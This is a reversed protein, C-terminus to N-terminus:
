WCRAGGSARRPRERRPRTDVARDGPRPSGTPEPPPASRRLSAPRAGRPRPAGARRRARRRADDSGRARGSRHRARRDRHRGAGVVGGGWARDRGSAGVRRPAFLAMPPEHDRVIPEVLPDDDAIYPPNSAVLHLTGRLDAPLAEYWSGTAVRVAAAGRGIGAANARAVDAADSSADTLWVQMGDHWREAAISLGIVGSGTGLDAVRWPRPLDRLAGFAHDVLLETEPRPILVRPDVLVDLTRFAWRGLVYQLPEGGLYRGVMADLHAVMRETAPDELVDLFDDGDAGSATECLWRAIRRDGVRGQTEAWLERWELTGDAAM